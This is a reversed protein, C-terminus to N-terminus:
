KASYWGIGEDHWNPLRSVLDRENKDITYFHEDGCLRYVPVGSSADKVGYFAVGEDHWGNAILIDREAPDPTYFHERGSLRYIPVGNDSNPAGYFVIGEYKWGRNSIAFAEDLVATYFHESGVFRYVPINNHNSRGFAIGEYNWGRNVISLAEDLSATYFHDKGNNLRFVYPMENDVYWAVGEYSWGNKILLDKEYNDATYFHERGNLRYVPSQTAATPSTTLIGEYSWGNQILNDREFLSTTYFHEDKSVRYINHRGSPQIPTPAMGSPTGFAIGEYSYNNNVLYDRLSSSNTLMHGGDGAYRHVHHSFNDSSVSPYAYFGVGEDTAGNNQLLIDREYKDATYFHENGLNIRYIPISGEAQNSFAYYAIGGYGWSNKMASDREYKSTTLFESGDTPDLLRWVCDVGGVRSNCEEPTAQTSGFWDTFYGFFNKNGYAGCQKDPTSGMPASLTTPNPQYPTFRYLASTARNEIYVNTGGCAANPNYQIYNWGVPYNTWGGSLVENYLAAASRVQNEFGSYAPNCAATDPCGFGTAHAYQSNFNPWKDALLGQEKQILVLLVQPNINYDQSARYIINAATKNGFREYEDAICVVYGNKVHYDYGLSAYYQVTSNYPQDCTIKSRIFNSIAAEDMSNKNSMVYDSMINGAKFQSFDAANSNQHMKSVMFFSAIMSLTITVIPIIVKKM